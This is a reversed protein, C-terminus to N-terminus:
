SLGEIHKNVEQQLNEPKIETTIIDIIFKRLMPNRLMDYMEKFAQEEGDKYGHEYYAKKIDSDIMMSKREMPHLRAQTCKHCDCKAEHNM